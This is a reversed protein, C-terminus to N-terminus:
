TRRIASLGSSKTSPSCACSKSMSSRHFSSAPATHSSNRAFGISTSRYSTKGHVQNPQDQEVDIPKALFEEWVAGAEDNWRELTDFDQAHEGDVFDLPSDAIRRVYSGDCRIIHDLTALIGGFTGVGTVEFDQQPTLNQTRCFQILSKTAWNNHRIPDYLLDNLGM